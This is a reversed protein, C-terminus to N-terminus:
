KEVYFGSKIIKITDFIQNNLRIKNKNPHDKSLIIEFYNNILNKSKKSDVKSFGEYKIGNYYYKYKINHVTYKTIVIEYVKGISYAPNEYIVKKYNNRYFIIICFMVLIVLYIYQQSVLKISM